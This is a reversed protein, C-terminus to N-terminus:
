NRSPYIGTLAICYRVGLITQSRPPNPDTGAAGVPSGGSKQGQMITPLGPGQGVHIPARGRLDPLAFTTRGDGGFTTGLLSFLAQNQAIALLQGDTAAWGRPCFTYGVMMIEGLFPEAAAQAPTSVTLSSGMAAMTLAFAKMKM